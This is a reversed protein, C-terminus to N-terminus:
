LVNEFHGGGREICAQLRRQFNRLINLRTEEDIDRAANFINTKLQAITRPTNQYVKGKLIGWIAFDLPSLDPSRAAWEVDSRRSIIRNDFKSRLWTLTTAATHPTAGDQQFWQTNRNRTLDRLSDWFHTLTTVYNEKTISVSAGNEDEFFYPGILGQASFAMWVTCRLSHLPKEYVFDPPSNSWFVCNKSNVHGFLHFHAEDSFWVQKIWEPNQEIKEQFWLCMSVRAAFDSESLKQKVPIRYPTLKLDNRLIQRTSEVSVNIDLLQLRRRISLTPRDAVSAHVAAVNEPSRAHRPRGSHMCKQDHVTGQQRFKKLWEFVRSKSPGKRRSIGYRQNFIKITKQFSRTKLYEEIAFAKQQNTWPM